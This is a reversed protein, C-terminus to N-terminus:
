PVRDSQPERAAIAHIVAVMDQNGFGAADAERYLAESVTVLPSAVSAGAAADLILTCNYHVDHITAQPRLDDALLKPLKVRMLDNAMPGALLVQQLAELDVGSARALHVAEAFAAVQAVLVVNVSIKTALARPVEGCDVIQRCLPTLLERVDAFAGAPGAVMAVLQGTEAPKRSGSVPAEIYRGGAATIIAALELSEAPRITGMQIIIRGKLQLVTHGATIALADQIAAANALMLIVTDAASFVAAVSGAITAGLAALPACREPTRNWIVLPHGAALLRMAMAEGMTGIGIFGLPPQTM